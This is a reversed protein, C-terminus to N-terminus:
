KDKKSYMLVTALELNFNDICRKRNLKYLDASITRDGERNKRDDKTLM